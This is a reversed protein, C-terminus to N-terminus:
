RTIACRTRTRRIRSCSTPTERLSPMRTGDFHFTSEHGDTILRMYGRELRWGTSDSWSAREATQHMAPRADNAEHEVVIGTMENAQPDLRRVSLVQGEETQFVFNTRMMGQRNLREGLLEARRENSVPVTESLVLAVGSLLTALVLLPLLLRFFSIGGAKAASIEQHRTMNGITFVTGILAAIPMAWLVYQPLVYLYSQAVDGLPLGRGLYRDLNDTLDVIIFLLPLGLVLTVFSALFQRAIYRDLLRIM